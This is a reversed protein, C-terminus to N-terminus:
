LADEGSKSSAIENWALEVVMAAFCGCWMAHRTELSGVNKLVLETFEPSAYLYQELLAQVDAKLPLRQPNTALMEFFQRAADTYRKRTKEFEDTFKRNRLQRRAEDDYVYLKRAV